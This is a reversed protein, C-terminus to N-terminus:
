SISSLLEAFIKEVKKRLKLIEPPVKDYKENLFKKLAYTIAFLNLVEPSIESIGQRGLSSQFGIMIKDIDPTKNGEKDEKYLTSIRRKTSTIKRPYQREKEIEEYEKRGKSTRRINLHTKSAEKTDSIIEVIALRLRENMSMKSKWSVLAYEMDGLYAQDLEKEIQKMKTKSITHYEDLFSRFKEGFSVVGDIEKNLESKKIKNYKRINEFDTKLLSIKLLWEKHFKFLIQKKLSKNKIYYSQFDYKQNFQNKNLEEITQKDLKGLGELVLPEILALSIQRKMKKPVPSVLYSNFHPIYKVSGDETLEKLYKKLSNHNKTAESNKIIDSFKSLPHKKIYSTIKKKTDKQV